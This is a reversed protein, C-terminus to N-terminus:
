IHTLSHTKHQKMYQKHGEDNELLISTLSLSSFMDTHLQLFSLDFVMQSYGHTPLPLPRGMVQKLGNCLSTSPSPPSWRREMAAKGEGVRKPPLYGNGCSPRSPSTLQAVRTNFRHVRWNPVLARTERSEVEVAPWSCYLYLTHNDKSPSCSWPLESFLSSATRNFLQLHLSYSSLHPRGLSTSWYLYPTLLM